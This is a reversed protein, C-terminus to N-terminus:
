ARGRRRRLLLLGSVVALGATSPEPIVNWSVVDQYSSNTLYVLSVPAFNLSNALYQNALNAVAVDDPGISVSGSFLNKDNPEMVVEWIAWQVAAADVNTRDPNALYGGILRAITERNDLSSPDQIVYELTQGYSLVELPQVCFADFDTFKLVGSPISEFAGGGYTGSVALGPSIETLTATLNQGRASM